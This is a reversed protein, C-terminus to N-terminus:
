DIDRSLANKPRKRKITSAKESLNRGWVPCKKMLVCGEEARLLSIM